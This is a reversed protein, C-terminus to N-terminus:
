KVHRWTKRDLVYRVTKHHVGFRQALAKVGVGAAFLRRMEAVGENTLKANPHDIGLPPIYSRGKKVKDVNNDAVTGLWLHAPNCCKRNDCSHCVCLGNPIPGNAVEYAARHAAVAKQRFGFTGYGQNNVNGQWNWCEDQGGPTVHEAVADAISEYGWANKRDPLQKMAM